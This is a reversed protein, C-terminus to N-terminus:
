QGPSRSSVQCRSCPMVDSNMSSTRASDISSTMSRVTAVTPLPGTKRETSMSTSSGETAGPVPVGSGPPMPAASRSHATRVTAVSSSKTPASNTSTIGVAIPDASTVASIASRM